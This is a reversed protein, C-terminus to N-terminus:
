RKSWNEVSEDLSGEDLRGVWEDRVKQDAFLYLKGDGIHWAEPSIEATVGKGAAFSCFGGFQPAYYEPTLEFLDRHGATNFHWTAGGWEYAFQRDGAMSAGAEFYAVPDYGALALGSSTNIDGWWGWSIPSVKKIYSFGGIAIILVVLGTALWKKM